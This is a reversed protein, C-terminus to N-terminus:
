DKLDGNVDSCARQRHLKPYIRRNEIAAKSLNSRPFFCIEGQFLEKSNLSRALRKMMPSSLLSVDRGGGHGPYM